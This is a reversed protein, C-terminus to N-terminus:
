FQSIKEKQEIHMQIIKRAKQLICFDHLIKANKCTIFIFAFFNRSLNEYSKEEDRVQNAGPHPFKQIQGKIKIGFDHLISDIRHPNTEIGGSEANM